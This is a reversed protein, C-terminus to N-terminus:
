RANYILNTHSDDIKLYCGSDLVFTHFNSFYGIYKCRKYFYTYYKQKQFM